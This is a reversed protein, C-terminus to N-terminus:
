IFQISTAASKPLSWIQDANDKTVHPGNIMASSIPAIQVDFIEEVGETFQFCGVIQRTMLDVIAIGCKIEDKLSNQIPLNSFVATERVQSLGIFACNNFIALGRTYGPLSVIKEQKGTAVDVAILEGRGSNLVWLKGQYMRPSHPMSLGETIVRSSPVELICGGSVKNDRWGGKTNTKGLVTVYKPMGDVMAMGNLHCRDEAAIESVFNPRWQPLFNYNNTLTCLCSFRTNVMWLEDNGWALDHISIDGTYQAGRTLFCANYTGPPDIQPALGADNKLLYVWDKGGVAMQTPSIAMGMAREFNHFDLKLANNKATVIGLKGAQYTSFFLSIKLTNLINTFSNSYDYKVERTKEENVDIYTKNISQVM